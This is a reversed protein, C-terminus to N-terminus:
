SATPLRASSAPSSPSRERPSRRSRSAGADENADRRRAARGRRVSGDHRHSRDRRGAHSPRGARRSPPRWSRRRSCKERERLDCRAAAPTLEHVMSLGFCLKEFRDLRQRVTDLVAAHRSEDGAILRMPWRKTGISCSRVSGESGLRRYVGRRAASILADTVKSMASTVVVVQHGKAATDVALQAAQAIREASGVSTGGFKMVILM